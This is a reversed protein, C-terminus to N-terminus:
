AAKVQSLSHNVAVRVPVPLPAFRLPLGLAQGRPSIAYLVFQELVKADASKLPVIAYAFTCVPYALKASAAPDVISLQNSAPVKKVTAAAAEIV